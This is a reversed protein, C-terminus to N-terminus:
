FAASLNDAGRLGFRGAQGALPVTRAGIADTNWVRIFEAPDPYFCQGETEVVRTIVVPDRANEERIENREALATQLQLTTERLEREVELRADFAEQQKRQYEKQAVLQAEKWEARVSDAGMGRGWFVLATALAVAGLISYLPKM